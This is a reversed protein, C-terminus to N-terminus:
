SDLDKVDLECFLCTDKEEFGMKKYLARASDNDSNVILRIKWLEMTRAPIMVHKILESAVGKKRYKESVWLEDIYLTGLRPDPKPILSATIWGVLRDRHRAAFIFFTDSNLINYRSFFEDTEPQKFSSIDGSEKGTVRWAIM